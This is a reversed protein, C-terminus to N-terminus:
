CDLFEDIIGKKIPSEKSLRPMINISVNGIAWVEGQNVVESQAIRQSPYSINKGGRIHINGIMPNLYSLEGRAMLSLLVTSWTIFNAAM